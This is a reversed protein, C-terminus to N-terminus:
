ATQWPPDEPLIAEFEEILQSEYADTYEGALFKPGAEQRFRDWSAEEQGPKIPYFRAGNDKAARMDGPADGIMLIREPPYKGAAALALHEKKKGMEQGAIVSMYKAIGHEEWERELAECPTASVVIMDAKGELLALSEPVGPFPPVGRVLEAVRANITVSWDLCRALEDNGTGAVEAELAPNGLASERDTWAKLEWLDPITIGRRKVEPRARLLNMVHQLAHFRNCGRTKSYLNVFDWAERAYKSCAALDWKWITVPCFCEKHKPEMTDFACGDSDIGVFYECQPEFAKLAAHPDPAAM